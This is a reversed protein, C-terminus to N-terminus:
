AAVMAFAQKAAAITKKVDEETPLVVGYPDDGYLIKNFRIQALTQPRSLGIAIQRLRDTKLRMLESEPLRPHQLLDALLGVAEPGFESLVDLDAATQTVGTTVSLSGGMQAAEDALQSATLTATGEKILSATMNAVDRHASGEDVGGADLAVGITVKPIIGYPVLTVKMGNALAYTEHTPLTFARPASGEPPEQKQAVAPIVAVAAALVLLKFQSIHRNM